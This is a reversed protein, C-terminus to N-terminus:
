LSLLPQHLNIVTQRQDDIIILLILLLRNPAQPVQQTEQSKTRTVTRSLTLRQLQALNELIIITM